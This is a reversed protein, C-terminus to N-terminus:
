GLYGALIQGYDPTAYKELVLTYLLTPALMLLFFGLAGLWKGAVVETETVPAVMLPELTGTRMEEAVLRMSIAPAIFFLLFATISFFPRMTAAQGPVLTYVSFVIGTIVLFLALTVYGVPTTFYAE